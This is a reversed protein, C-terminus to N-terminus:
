DGPDEKEVLEYEGNGRYRIGQDYVLMQLSGSEDVYSSTNYNLRYGREILAFESFQRMGLDKLELLIIRNKKLIGNVKRLLYQEAKYRRNNYANRCYDSCFKKDARGVIEVQCERCKMVDFYPGEYSSSWVCKRLALPSFM